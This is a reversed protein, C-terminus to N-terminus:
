WVDRILRDPPRAHSSCAAVGAAGAGKAGVLHPFIFRYVHSYKKSRPVAVFFSDVGIWCLRCYGLHKSANEDTNRAGLECLEFYDFIDRDINYSGRCGYYWVRTDFTYQM